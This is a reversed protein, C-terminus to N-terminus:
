NVKLRESRLLYRIHSRIPQQKSEVKPQALVSPSFTGDGVAMVSLGGEVSAVVIIIVFARVDVGVNVVFGVDSDVCIM